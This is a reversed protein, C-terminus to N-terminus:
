NETTEQEESIEETKLTGFKHRMVFWLITLVQLIACIILFFAFKASGGAVIVVPFLAWILGSVSVARFVNGYWICALVTMVIFSVPIAVLFVFWCKQVALVTLAFFVIAAVLWVLIVSMAVIMKHKSKKKKNIQKKNPAVASEEGLLQGVTTGFIDAMQKLVYADPLGEGREWKSISKDSYNLKEALAGQTLGSEKRCATINSAVKNKFEQETM